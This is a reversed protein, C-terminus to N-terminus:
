GNDLSRDKNFQDYIKTRSFIKKFSNGPDYRLQAKKNPRELRVWVSHPSSYVKYEVGAEDIHIGLYTAPYNGVRFNKIIGGKLIFKRLSKHQNLFLPIGYGMEVLNHIMGQGMIYGISDTLQSSLEFIKEEKQDAIAQNLAVLIRLYKAAEINQEELWDAYILWDSDGKNSVLYRLFKETEQENSEALWSIFDRM